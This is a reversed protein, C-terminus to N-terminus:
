SASSSSIFNRASFSSTDPPRHDYSQSDFPGLSAQTTLCITRSRSSMPLFSIQRFLSLSGAMSAICFAMAVALSAVVRGLFEGSYSGWDLPPASFAACSMVSMVLLIRMPSSALSFVFIFRLSGITVHIMRCADKTRFLYLIPFSPWVAQLLSVPLSQLPLTASNPSCTKPLSARFFGPVPDLSPDFFFLFPFLFSASLLTWPM